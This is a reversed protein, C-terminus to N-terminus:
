AGDNEPQRPNDTEPNAPGGADPTNPTRPETEPKPDRGGNSVPHDPQGRAFGTMSQWVSFYINCGQDSRVIEFSHGPSGIFPRLSWAMQTRHPSRAVLFWRRM